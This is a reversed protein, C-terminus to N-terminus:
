EGLCADWNGRTTEEKCIRDFSPPGGALPSQKPFPSVPQLESSKVNSLTKKRVEELARTCNSVCSNSLPFFRAKCAHTKKIADKSGMHVSANVNM